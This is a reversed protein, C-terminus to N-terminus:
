SLVGWVALLDPGGPNERARKVSFTHGKMDVSFTHGALSAPHGLGGTTINMEVERKDDTM